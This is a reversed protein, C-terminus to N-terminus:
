LIIYIHLFYDNFCTRTITESFLLLCNKSFQQSVASIKLWIRSILYGKRCILSFSQVMKPFRRYRRFNGLCESWKRFHKSSGECLDLANRAPIKQVQEIRVSISPGGNNELRNKVYPAMEVYAVLENLFTKIGLFRGVANCDAWDVGM